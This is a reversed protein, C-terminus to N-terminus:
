AGEGLGEVFHDFIPTADAPGPGAEPHYQVAQVPLSRHEFGAVTGDNLNRETVRLTGPFGEERVSYGHNQSTIAVAGGEVRGVPQNPGRHGFRLKFTEAGFASALLQHGLCIGLTPFAEAIERVGELLHAMQAPDGPGNSFLVGDPGFAELEGRGVERPWLSVEVGRALLHRLINHKVGFDIVAVHPRTKPGGGEVPTMELEGAFPDEGDVRVWQPRRSAVEEVFDREEYSPAERLEKLLDEVDGSDRGHAIVGMTVGGDRLHRTLSRTDVQAIGVVEEEILWEELSKKARHNSARRSLDRLIAGAAQLRDSEGDEGTVGYNGIHPSTFTVLQGRYSPDTLVEQYGSMGTNFVVEGLTKGEAGVAIGDFTTGDSLVLVAPRRGPPIYLPPRTVEESM